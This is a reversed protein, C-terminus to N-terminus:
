PQHSTLHLLFGNPELLSNLRDLVAPAAQEAHSLLVWSGQLMATVLPGDVWEFRGASNMRARASALLQAAQSNKGSVAQLEEVLAEAKGITDVLPAKQDLCAELLASQRLCQEIKECSAAPLKEQSRRLAFTTATVFRALQRLLSRADVQEFCGLLESADMAPTLPVEQLPMYAMAALWRVLSHKGAGPGGVLLLPSNSIKRAAPIKNRRLIEDECAQVASRELVIIDPLFGAGRGYLEFRLFEEKSAEVLNSLHAINRIRVPVGDVEFAKLRANRVDQFGLNVTHALVYSLVVVQEDQFERERSDMIESLGNCREKRWKDGFTARLYQQSLVVFVLGGIICYDLLWPAEKEVSVLPEQPCLQLTISLKSGARMIEAELQEGVFKEIAVYPFPVRDHRSSGCVFPVCGDNGIPVGILSLLVDGKQLVKANVTTPDVSKVILGSQGTALGLARRMGANELKQASFRGHGFATVRVPPVDESETSAVPAASKLRRWATLFKQVVSVPIIFGINETSGDKLSEYAVGVCSGGAVLAPGGSNGPNVAADIQIVLRNRWPDPNDEYDVRSVVGKTVSLNDGGTPYGVCVVESFLAPVENCLTQATAGEWFAEERVTLLALDCDTARALVEAEYKQDDGRKRVEICSAHAVCHRNTLLLREQLCLVFATSTSSQQRKTTWPMSYNPKLERCFLKVVSTGELLAGINGWIDKPNQRHRKTSRMAEDSEDGM